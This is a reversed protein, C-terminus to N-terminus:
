PPLGKELFMKGDRENSFSRTKGSDEGGTGARRVELIHGSSMVARRFRRIASEGAENEGVTVQL